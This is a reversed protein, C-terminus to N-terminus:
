SGGAPRGFQRDLALNLELVNVTPEGLLGFVRGVVFEDVVAEIRAKSIGRAQAV